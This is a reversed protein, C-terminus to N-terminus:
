VFFSAAYATTPWSSFVSNMRVVSPAGFPRMTAAASSSGSGACQRTTTGSPSPTMRPAAIAPPRM